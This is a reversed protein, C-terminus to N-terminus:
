NYSRLQLSLPAINRHKQNKRSSSLIPKGLTKKVPLVIREFPTKSRFVFTLLIAMHVLKKHALSTKQEHAANLSHSKSKSFLKQSIPAYLYCNKATNEDM